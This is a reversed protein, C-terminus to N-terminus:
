FDSIIEVNLARLIKQIPTIMTASGSGAYLLGVVYNENDLVASGSDGPASMGDAMLQGNFVAARGNYMVSTTVDIQIIRGQTVGTTRGSKKVAGGLGIDRAGQPRGIGHINPTFMAPDLPRALAADMQNSGETVRYAQMRHSSGTLQAIRNLAKAINGAISCDAEEGGFDLPIFDDLLAVRDKASGGDYQGPQIIPDGKQGANADALVHNNSLIFIQEGRRVLCGLTGATVHIHGVSVGAPITPRWRNRQEQFARIVGTEIVDTRVREIRKPILDAEALQAKPLKRAVNVVVALEDTPGSATVKYGVGVGVVNKRNLLYPLNAQKVAGVHRIDLAM